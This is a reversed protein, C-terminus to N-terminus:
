CKIFEKIIKKLEQCRLNKIYFIRMFHAKYRLFRKSATHHDSLSPM